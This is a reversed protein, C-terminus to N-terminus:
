LVDDPWDRALPYATPAGRGGRTTVQRAETRPRLEQEKARIEPTMSEGFDDPEFVPRLEVEGDGGDTNPIRKAWEIAEDHTDFTQFDVGPVSLKDKLSLAKIGRASLAAREYNPLQASERAAAEWVEFVDKSFPDSIRVDDATAVIDNRHSDLIEEFAPYAEEEFAEMRMEEGFVGIVVGDRYELRWNDGERKM